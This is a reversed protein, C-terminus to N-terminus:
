VLPVGSYGDLRILQPSWSQKTLGPLAIAARLGFVAGEDTM